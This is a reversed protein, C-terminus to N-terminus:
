LDGKSSVHTPSRSRSRISESRKRKKNRAEAKKKEKEFDNEWNEHLFTKNLKLKNKDLDFYDDKMEEDDIFTNM